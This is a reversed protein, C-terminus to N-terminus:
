PERQHSPVPAPHPRRRGRAGAAGGSAPLPSEAARPRAAGADRGSSCPTSRARRSVHPPRGTSLAEGRVFAQLLQEACLPRAAADARHPARAERPPSPPHGLRRCSLPPVLRDGGLLSLITRRLLGRRRARGDSRPPVLRRALGALGGARLSGRGDRGRESTRPRSAPAPLLGRRGAACPLSLPPDHASPARRALASRHEGRRGRTAHGHRQRPRRPHGDPIEIDPNLLLVYRGQARPLAVNNGAAFGVNPVRTVQLDPFQAEIADPTGDSSGSDVLLWEVAVEGLSAQMSELTQLARERGQHTVVVISVDPVKSM